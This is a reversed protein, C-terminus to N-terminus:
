SYDSSEPAEEDLQESMDRLLLTVWRQVVQDDDAGKIGESKLHAVFSDNWDLEVRVGQETTVWGQIDVWPDASIKMQAVYADQLKKAEERQEIVEQRIMEKESRLEQMIQKKLMAIMEPDIAGAPAVPLDEGETETADQLIAFEDQLPNLKIDSIDVLNDNDDTIKTM